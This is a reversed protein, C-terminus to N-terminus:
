VEHCVDLLVMGRIPPVERNLRRATVIANVADTEALRVGVWRGGSPAPRGDAYHYRVIFVRQGPGPHDPDHAVNEPRAYRPDNVWATACACPAAGVRCSFVHRM